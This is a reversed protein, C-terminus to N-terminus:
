HFVRAARDERPILFSEARKLRNEGRSLSLSFTYSFPLITTRTGKLEDSKGHIRRNQM